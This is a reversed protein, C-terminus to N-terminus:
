ENKLPYLSEELMRAPTIADRAIRGVTASYRSAAASITAGKKKPDATARDTVVPITSEVATESSVITMPITAATKHLMNQQHLPIGEEEV